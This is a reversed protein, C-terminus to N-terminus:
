IFHGDLHLFVTSCFHLLRPALEKDSASALDLYCSKSSIQINESSAFQVLFSKKKKQM